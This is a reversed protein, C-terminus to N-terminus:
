MEHQLKIQLDLYIQVEELEGDVGELEEERTRVSDRMGNCATEAVEIVQQSM